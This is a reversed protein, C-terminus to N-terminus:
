KKKKRSKRTYRNRFKNKRKKRKLVVIIVVVLLILVGFVLGLDLKNEEDNGDGVVNGTIKGTLIANGTKATLLSKLFNLLKTFPNLSPVISGCDWECTTSNENGNCSGDGCYPSTLCSYLCSSCNYHGQSYIDAPNDRTWICGLKYRHEDYTDKVWQEVALEHVEMYRDFYDFLSNHNWLTKMSATKEMMEAALIFGWWQVQYRYPTGWDLGDTKPMRSHRIGWEPLGLHDGTYEMYDYKDGHGYMFPTYGIIYDYEVGEEGKFENELILTDSGKTPRTLVNYNFDTESNWSTRDSLNAGSGPSIKIIINNGHTDVAWESWNGPVKKVIVLRGSSNRSVKVRSGDNFTGAYIMGTWDLLPPNYIDTNKVYFTQDDEGFHIYDSPENGASGNKYLYDGSKQGINKMEEDNLMAGAFLIPFKRGQGIQGDCQWARINGTKIVGFNDIGLQIMSILLKEKDENTYNSNLIIAAMSVQDIMWGGDPPMNYEPHSYSGCAGGLYDLWVREFTRELSDYIKDGKQKKLKPPTGVISFNSLKSYNIDRMNFKVIKNSGTYPPRFSGQAPPEDLVTLVAVSLLQMKKFIWSGTEYRSESSVLSSNPQVILLNSESIMNGNPMGINYSKNWACLRSDFGQVDEKSPNIMSGNRITGNDDYSAPEIKVITVPGVVWYDGNAFQGYEYEKDFYWTINFQSINNTKPIAAPECQVSTTNWECGGAVSCPNDTCNESDTYNSCRTIGSCFDFVCIGNECKEGTGCIAGNIRDLCGDSINLSCNFPMSGQCFSGVSTCGTDNTCGAQCVGGQCTGISCATGDTKNIDVPCSASNSTCNEKVDCEGAERCVDTSLNYIIECSGTANCVGYGCVNDLYSCNEDDTCEILELCRGDLCIKGELSCDYNVQGILSNNCYYETLTNISNNCYDENTTTLYSTTGKEYYNIGADTDTCTPPTPETSPGGGGGTTTTPTPTTKTTDLTTTNVPVGTETVYEFAVGIETISNFDSIGIEGAGVNYDYTGLYKPAKGFFGLVVDWFTRTYPVEIESIGETTEYNHEKGQEDTFIFKVKSINYINTGANLKIYANEMNRSFSIREIEAGLQLQIEPSQWYRYSLYSITLFVVIGIIILVLTVSIGTKIQKRKKQKQLNDLIDLTGEKGTEDINGEKEFEKQM